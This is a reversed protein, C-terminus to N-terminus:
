LGFPLCNFQRELSVMQSQISHSADKLDIKTIWDGQQLKLIDKLMHIGEMKFHVTEVVEKPQNHM